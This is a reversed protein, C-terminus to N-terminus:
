RSSDYRLNFIFYNSAIQYNTRLSIQDKLRIIDPDLQYNDLYDPLDEVPILKLKEKLLLLTSYIEGVM